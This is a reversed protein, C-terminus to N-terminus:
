RFNEVFDLTKDIKAFISIKRYNKSFDLSKYIKVWISIKGFIQFLISNEFM